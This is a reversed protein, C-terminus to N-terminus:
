KVCPFRFFFFGVFSHSCLEGFLSLKFAQINLGTLNESLLHTCYCCYDAMFSGGANDTGMRLIILDLCHQLWVLLQDWYISFFTLDTSHLMFTLISLRITDRVWFTVNGSGYCIMCTNCIVLYSVPLRLLALRQQEGLGFMCIRVDSNLLSETGCPGFCM